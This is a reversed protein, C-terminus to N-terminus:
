HRILPIIRGLERAVADKQESQLKVTTNVSIYPM